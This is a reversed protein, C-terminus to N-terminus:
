DWYPRKMYEIHWAEYPQQLAAKAEKMTRYHSSSILEGIFPGTTAFKRVDWGYYSYENRMLEVRYSWPKGDWTMTSVLATEYGAGWRTWEITTDVLTRDQPIRPVFEKRM